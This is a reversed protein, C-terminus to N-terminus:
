SDNGTQSGSYRYHMLQFLPSVYMRSSCIIHALTSLNIIFALVKAKKLQRDQMLENRLNVEATLAHDRSLTKERSRVEEHVQLVAKLLVVDLQSQM